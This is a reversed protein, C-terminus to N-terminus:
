RRKQGFHLKLSQAGIKPTLKQLISVRNEANAESNDVIQGQRRVKKSKQRMERFFQSRYWHNIKKFPLFTLFTFSHIIRSRVNYHRRVLFFYLISFLKM